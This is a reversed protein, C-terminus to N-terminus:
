AKAANIAGQLSQKYANSTYTAGSVTAINASQATLVSQRLRPIARSNIEGTDGGTPYTATVDAIRGGSVVITVKITGYRQTAPPGAFTGNKLGSGGPPPAATTPAPARTTAPPAGPPTAAPPTPMAVSPLSAQPSDIPAATETGALSESQGLDVGGDPPRTGLKAAVMLGTGLATGVFAFFARRV